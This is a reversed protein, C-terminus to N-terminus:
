HNAALNDLEEWMLELEPWGREEKFYLAAKFESYETKYTEKHRNNSKVARRWNAIRDALKLIVAWTNAYIKPYTKEKKEKRTAGPEDTVRWAIDVATEDMGMDLTQEVSIDTDEYLDHLNAAMHLIPYSDAPFKFETLINCVDVRHSRYPGGDYTIGLREETKSVFDDIEQITM